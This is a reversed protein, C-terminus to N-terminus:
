KILFLTTYVGIWVIFVFHWYYSIAEAGAHDDSQLAPSRLGFYLGILMIIGAVVHLYHFGTMTLFISGYADTHMTFNQQAWDRLEFGLFGIGGIISTYLWGYAAKLNRRRLARIFPLMVLSATLLMFTGIATGLQDHHVYPPPWVKNISKLDFYTAFLASFFM